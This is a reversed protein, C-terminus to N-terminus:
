IKTEIHEPIIFHKDRATQANIVFLSTINWIKMECELQHRLDDQLEPEPEWTGNQPNIVLILYLASDSLDPDALDPPVDEQTHRKLLINGYLSLSHRMKLTIEDIFENYKKIKEKKKDDPINEVVQRPCSSKGEIFYLKKGRRLIFECSKIGNSRLNKTYQKSKEIQFVQNDNYEGFQMGSEQIIVGM